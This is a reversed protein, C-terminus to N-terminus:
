VNYVRNTFSNRRETALDENKHSTEIDNAVDPYDAPAQKIRDSRPDSDNLHNQSAFEHEFDLENEFETNPAHDATQGVDVRIDDLSTEIKRSSSPRKPFLASATQQQGLNELQVTTTDNGHYSDNIAATSSDVSQTDFAELNNSSGGARDASVILKEKM